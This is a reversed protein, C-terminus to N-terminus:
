ITLCEIGPKSLCYTNGIMAAGLKKDKIALRLTLCMGEKLRERASENIVPWENLSLGIGQGLGYEEIYSANSKQIEAIANKYCRSIAKGPQMCEILSKFLAEANELDPYSFSNESTTFTRIGESWYREYSIALYIIVIDGPNITVDETPRFAWERELPKAFLVRVDEAGEFRAEKYLMAEVARENMNPFSSDTIFGFLGEVIRSARRIQDCERNSKVMRLERIISDADVIDCGPINDTLFKLQYHPMLQTLGAFGITGPILEKEKLYEACGRSVDPCARVDEIWTTMKASPLGRSAGEFFL